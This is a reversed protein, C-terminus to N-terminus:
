DARECDRCYDLSGDAMLHANRLKFAALDSLAVCYDGHFYLEAVDGGCLTTADTDLLHIQNAM